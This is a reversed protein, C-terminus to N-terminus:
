ASAIPPLLVSRYSLVQEGDHTDRVPLARYSANLKSLTLNTAIAEISENANQNSQLRPCYMFTREGQVGYRVFLASWEQLFNGGERSVFGIVSQAKMTQTPVGAILPTALRLGGDTLVEVVQAVNFSVRRIYNIDTVSAAGPQLYTASLGAGIFGSQTSYDDDVVIHCGVKISKLADDLYIVTDSSSSKLSLAPAATTGAGSPVLLAGPALVNFHQSGSALALSMKSWTLFNFSVTAALSQRVQMRATAPDGANVESIVSQTTYNFSDVWGLDIWPPLPENANADLGTTPDFMTPTSTSRNVPAAYARTRRYLLPLARTNITRETSM